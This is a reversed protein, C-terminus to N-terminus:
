RQRVCRVHAEDCRDTDFMHGNGWYVAWANIPMKRYIESTWYANSVTNKLGVKKAAAAKRLTQLEARTPLRWDSFGELELNACYSRADKWVTDKKAAMANDQWQLKATTDIVTDGSRKWGAWALASVMLLLSVVRIM